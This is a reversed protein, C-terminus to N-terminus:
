LRGARGHQRGSRPRVPRALRDMPVGRGSLRHQPARVLGPGGGARRAAPCPLSSRVPTGAGAVEAETEDFLALVATHGAFGDALRFFAIRGQDRTTLLELGLMERYFAVMAAMNHTRIAIEGLARPRFGRKAMPM